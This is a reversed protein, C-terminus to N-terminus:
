AISELVRQTIVRQQGDGLCHVLWETSGRRELIIGFQEKPRHMLRVLTGIKM